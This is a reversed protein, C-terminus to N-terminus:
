AAQQAILKFSFQTGTTANGHLIFCVPARPLLIDGGVETNNPEGLDIIIGTMGSGASIGGSVAGEVTSITCDQAPQNSTRLRYHAPGSYLGCPVFIIEGASLSLNDVAALVNDFGTGFNSGAYTIGSSEPQVLSTNQRWDSYPVTRNSGFVNIFQVVAGSTALPITVIVTMYKGHMPGTGALPSPNAQSARGCWIYWDEEFVPINSVMDDFWQLQFLAVLPAGVSGSPSAYVYANIDYSAFLTVDQLNVPVYQSGSNNLLAANPSGTLSGASALATIQQVNPNTWGMDCM